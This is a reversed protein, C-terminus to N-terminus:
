RHCPTFYVILYWWSRAFNGMRCHGSCFYSTNYWYDYANCHRWLSGSPTELWWRWSHKSMQKYLHLDFFVDFTRTVPRQSPFEGTVPSNGACIALLASFARMQRCWWTPLWIGYTNCLLCYGCTCESGSWQAFLDKCEYKTTKIIETPANWKLADQTGSM